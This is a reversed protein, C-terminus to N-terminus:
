IINQGQDNTDLLRGIRKRLEIHREVNLDKYTTARSALRAYGNYHSYIDSHIIKLNIQYWLLM